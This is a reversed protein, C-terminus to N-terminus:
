NINIYKNSKYKGNKNEECLFMEYKIIAQKNGITQNENKLKNIENLTEKNDKSNLSFDENLLIYEYSKINLLNELKKDELLAMECKFSLIEKENNLIKNNKKLEYIKNGLIKEKDGISGITTNSRFSDNINTRINLLDKEVLTIKLSNKLIKGELVQIKLNTLEKEMFKDKNKLENIIEPLRDKENKNFHSNISTDDALAQYYNLDYFNQKKQNYMLRRQLDLIKYKELNNNEKELEYELKEKLEGEEKKLQRIEDAFVDRLNWIKITYDNNKANDINPNNINQFKVTIKEIINSFTEKIKNLSNKSFFRSNEGEMSNIKKTIFLLNFLYILKKKYIQM